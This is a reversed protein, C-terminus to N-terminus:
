PMARLPDRREPLGAHRTRRGHIAAVAVGNYINAPGDASIATAPRMSGVVVVPKSTAIVLDLFCSTEELTDTSHTILAADAESSALVADLRRALRLWVTDDMDQSGINVV